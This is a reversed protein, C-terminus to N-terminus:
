GIGSAVVVFGVGVLLRWFLRVSRLFFLAASTPVVACVGFVALFLLSDGFADMGSAAQRDPGNTVVIYAAVVATAIFGALVYGALVLGVRIRLTLPPLVRDGFVEVM